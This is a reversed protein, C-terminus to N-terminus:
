PILKEVHDSASFNNEQYHVNGDTASDIVIVNGEETYYKFFGSVGMFDSKTTIYPYLKTTENKNKLTTIATTETGTIEFLDTIKFLKWKKDKLNINM